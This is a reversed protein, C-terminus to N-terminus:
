GKNKMKALNWIMQFIWGMAFMVLWAYIMTLIATVDIFQNVYFFAMAGPSGDDIYLNEILPPFPDPNPVTSGVADCLGTLANIISVIGVEVVLQIAELSLDM